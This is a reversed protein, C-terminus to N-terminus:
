KTQKFRVPVFKGNKWSWAEVNKQGLLEDFKNFFEIQEELVGKELIDGFFRLRDIGDIRERWVKASLGITVVLLLFLKKM